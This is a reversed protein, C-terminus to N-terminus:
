IQCLKGKQFVSQGTEYITSDIFPTIEYSECHTIVEEDEMEYENSGGCFYCKKNKGECYPCEILEYTPRYEEWEYFHFKSEWGFENLIELQGDLYYALEAPSMKMISKEPNIM